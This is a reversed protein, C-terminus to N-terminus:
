VLVFLHRHYFQVVNWRLAVLLFNALLQDFPAVVDFKRLVNFLKCYFQRFKAFLGRSKQHVLPAIHHFLNFVRGGKFLFLFSNILGNQLCLFLLQLLFHLAVAPSFHVWRRLWVSVAVLIYERLNPIWNILVQFHHPPVLIPLVLFVFNGWVFSIQFNEFFFRRDRIDVCRLVVGWIWYFFLFSELRFYESLRNQLVPNLSLHALGSIGRQKVFTLGQWLFLLSIIELHTM